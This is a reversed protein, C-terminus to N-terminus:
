DTATRLTLFDEVGVLGLIQRAGFPMRSRQPDHVIEPESLRVQHGRTTVTCGGAALINRVWDSDPGYTLAVLYGDDTGFVNVPTRYTKGSKRGVHEIVGFGPAIPALVGFVRNTVHRNFRALGRPAVM